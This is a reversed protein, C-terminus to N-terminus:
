QLTIGRPGGGGFFFPQNSSLFDVLLCSHCSSLAGLLQSNEHKTHNDSIDGRQPAEHLRFGSTTHQITMTMILDVDTNEVSELALSNM